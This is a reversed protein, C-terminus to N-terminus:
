GSGYTYPTTRALVTFGLRELIPRSTPAADVHLFRYGREAALAARRAVLARFIGRSRWEPRTAGGWLGAFESGAELELRGGAVPRGDAVAAVAIVSPPDTEIGAILREAMGPVGRGFIEDQMGVLRRAGEADGVLELRVGTPLREPLSLEAIEAVLVTELEGAQFGAATLRRPLDDPRDYSYHKWEWRPCAPAIREIETAIVQDADLEELESWSIMAWGDPPRLIRTLHPEREVREAGPAPPPNRRVQEDYLARVSQLDM